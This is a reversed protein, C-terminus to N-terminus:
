RDSFPSSSPSSSLAVHLALAGDDGPQLVAAREDDDVLGMQPLSVTGSKARRQEILQAADAIEGAAAEHQDGVIGDEYPAQALAVPVGGGEVSGAVAHTVAAAPVAVAGATEADSQAGTKCPGDAPDLAPGSSTSQVPKTVRFM